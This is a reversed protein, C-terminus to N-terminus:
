RGEDVLEVVGNAMGELQLRMSYGHMKVLHQVDRGLFVQQTWQFGRGYEVTVRVDADLRMRFMVRRALCYILPTQAM